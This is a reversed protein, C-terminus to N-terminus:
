FNSTSHLLPSVKIADGVLFTHEVDNYTDNLTPYHFLLPDFCTNGNEQADFLCTYLFRLYKYRDLISDKAMDRYPDKLRYPENAPGDKDRHQRAFPFFTALQIWRGCVEDGDAESSTFFGCTDPGVMPIGFMNFNMVGAVSYRM